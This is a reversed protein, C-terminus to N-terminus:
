IHNTFSYVIILFLNIFKLKLNNLILQINIEKELQCDLCVLYSRQLEARKFSKINSTFFACSVLYKLKLM